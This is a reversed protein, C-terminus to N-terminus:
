CAVHDPLRTSAEIMVGAAVICHRFGHSLSM